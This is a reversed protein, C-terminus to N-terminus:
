APSGFSNAHTNGTRAPARISSDRPSHIAASSAAVSVVTSPGRGTHGGALGALPAPDRVDDDDDDDDDDDPLVLPPPPHPPPEYVALLSVAGPTPPPVVSSVDGLPSM